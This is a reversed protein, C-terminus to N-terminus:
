KPLDKERTFFREVIEEDTLHGLYDNDEKFIKVAKKKKIPRHSLIVEGLFKQSLEPAEEMTVTDLAWSEKEKDPVEVVYRMRYQALTEVLVWAM